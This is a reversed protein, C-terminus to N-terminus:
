DDAYAPTHKARIKQALDSREKGRIAQGAKQEARGIEENVFSERVYPKPLRVDVKPAEVNVAGECGWGRDECRRKVDGADSVWATPDDPMGPRCLQGIWKKGHPNVGAAKAAAIRREQVARNGDFPDDHPLGHLIENGTKVRPAPFRRRVRAGCADCPPDTSSWAPLMETFSQFCNPCDFTYTPM